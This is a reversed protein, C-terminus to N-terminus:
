AMKSIEGDQFYKTYVKMLKDPNLPKSLFDSNGSNFLKGMDKIHTSTTLMIIVVKEKDTFKLEQFKELFEFGDMVPMNIDLFIVAPLNEKQDISNQVFDLGERGNHAVKVETCLGSKKLLDQNIFNTIPDDDILLVWRLKQM